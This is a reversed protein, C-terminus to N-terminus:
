VINVTEHEEGELPSKLGNVMSAGSEGSLFTGIQGDLVVRCFDIL